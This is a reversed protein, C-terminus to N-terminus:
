LQTAIDLFSFRQFCRLAFGIGLHTKGSTRYLSDLDWASSRTSLGCTSAPHGTYGLPGLSRVAQRQVVAPEQECSSRAAQGAINLYNNKSPKHIYFTGQAEPM